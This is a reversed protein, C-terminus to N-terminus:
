FCRLAVGGVGGGEVDWTWSDKDTPDVNLWTNAMGLHVQAGGGPYTTRDLLSLSAYDDVTDYNLTVSQVGGGRNYQVKVNGGQSFDFLQIFPWVGATTEANPEVDGMQISQGFSNYSHNGNYTAINIAGPERVVNMSVGAYNLTTDSSVPVSAPVETFAATVADAGCGDISALAPGSTVAGGAVVYRTHAFPFAVGTTDSFYLANADVYGTGRYYEANVELATELVRDADGTDECITGFDLGRGANGDATADALLAQASNAFYAYWKGDTAQITRVKKGNLVVDPEGKQENTEDIDPDIIVVEVVQPGSFHNGFAASEASVYLNPNTSQAMVPQVGPIAFTLGGAVMIAMLFVSTAKGAQGSM